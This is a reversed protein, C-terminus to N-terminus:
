ENMAKEMFAIARYRVYTHLEKDDFFDLKDDKIFGGAMEDHGGGVGKDTIIFKVLEDAAINKEGSRISFKIGEKRKAYSVVVSVGEITYVMDSITGLLSDNCDEIHVFGINKYIEIDELAMAYAHLDDRGIENMRLDKIRFLDAISYLWYFNELDKNSNTRTLNNTDNMIGYLLATAVTSDPIIGLEKYYSAIITACAGVDEQIDCYFYQSNDSVNNHHDIVGIHKAKLSTINSNGIQSDIYLVYEKADTENNDDRLSMGINFMEIMKKSNAKEIDNV